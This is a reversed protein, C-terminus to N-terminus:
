SGCSSASSTGADAAPLLDDLGIVAPEPCVISAHATASLAMAVLMCLLSLALWPLSYGGFIRRQKRFEIAM